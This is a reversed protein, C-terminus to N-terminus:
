SRRKALKDSVSEFAKTMGSVEGVLEAKKIQLKAYDNRLETLETDLERARQSEFSFKNFMEQSKREVAAINEQQSRKTVTLDAELERIKKRLDAMTERPM